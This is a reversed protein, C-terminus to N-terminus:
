VIFFDRRSIEGEIVRIEFDVSDGASSM